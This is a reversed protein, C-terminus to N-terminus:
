LSHINYKESYIGNKPSKVSNTTKSLPPASFFHFTFLSFQFTHLTTPPLKILELSFTTMLVHIFEDWSM